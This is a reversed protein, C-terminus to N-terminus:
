KDISLCKKNDITYDLIFIDNRDYVIYKYSAGFEKIALSSIPLTCMRRSGQDYKLKRLAQIDSIETKKVNLLRAHYVISNNIAFVSFLEQDQDINIPLNSSTNKGMEKLFKEIGGAQKITNRIQTPTFDQAISEFSICMLAILIIKKM